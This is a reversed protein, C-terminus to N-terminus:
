GESRYQTLAETLHQSELLPSTAQVLVLTDGESLEPHAKLFELLVSETSATDSANALSRHYIQVKDLGLARVVSAIEECDTALYVVDVQECQQLASLTWYVLPKQCFNKINKLPISKSGCRAPVLGITSM